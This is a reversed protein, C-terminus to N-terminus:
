IVWSAFSRVPAFQKFLILCLLASFGECCALLLSFMKLRDARHKACNIDPNNNKKGRKKLSMLGMLMIHLSLGVM